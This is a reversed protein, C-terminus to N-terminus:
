EKPIWQTEKKQTDKELQTLEIKQVELAEVLDAAAIHLKRLLSSSSMVSSM